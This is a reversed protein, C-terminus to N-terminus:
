QECKLVRIYHFKFKLICEKSNYMQFQMLIKYLNNLELLNFINSHIGYRSLKLIMRM